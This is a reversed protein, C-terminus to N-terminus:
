LDRLKMAAKGAHGASDRLAQAVNGPSAHPFREQLRSFREEWEAEEPRLGAPEPCPPSPAHAFKEEHPDQIVMVQPSPTRSPKTASKSSSKSGGNQSAHVADASENVSVRKRHSHRVRSSERSATSESSKVRPKEFNDHGTAPDVMPLWGEPTRVWYELVNVTDGPSVVQGSHDSLDPSRRVSVGSSSACRLTLGSHHSRRSSTGEDPSPNLHRHKGAAAPHSSAENGGRSHEKHHRKSVVPSAVPPAAPPAEEEDGSDAATDAAGALPLDGDKIQGQKVIERLKVVDFFAYRLFMEFFKRFERESLVGDGNVDTAVFFAKLSGDSPPQLGFNKYLECTLDRVEEWQLVGDGNADFKSFYEKCTHKFMPPSSLLISVHEAEDPDAEKVTASTLDRLRKAANGAHGDADTLAQLVRDARVNPYRQQLRDFIERWEPPVSHAM